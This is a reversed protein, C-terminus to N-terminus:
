LSASNCEEHDIVCSSGEITKGAPIVVACECRMCYKALVPRHEYLIPRPFIACLDKVVQQKGERENRGGCDIRRGLREVM